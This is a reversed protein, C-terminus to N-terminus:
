LREFAIRQLRTELLARQSLSITDNMQRLANDALDVLKSLIARERSLETRLYRRESLIHGIYVLAGSIFAVLFFTTALLIVPNVAWESSLIGNKKLSSALLAGLPVGSSAGTMLVFLKFQLKELRSHISQIRNEISEAFGIIEETEKLLPNLTTEM